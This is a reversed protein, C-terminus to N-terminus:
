FVDNFGHCRWIYRWRHWEKICVRWQLKSREFDIRLHIRLVHPIVEIVCAPKRRDLYVQYSGIKGRFYSDEVNDALFFEGKVGFGGVTHDIVFLHGKEVRTGFQDKNPTSYPINTQQTTPGCPSNFFM